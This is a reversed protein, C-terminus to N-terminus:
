KHVTGHQTLWLPDLDGAKYTSSYSLFDDHWKQISCHGDAFSFASANGHNIAPRDNIGGGSIGNYAIFLFFGDNISRPNEDLYVFQDSTSLGGAGFDTTKSYGKYSLNLFQEGYKLETQSLGVYCNASCSRIRIQKTAADKSQDAPCHYIGSSKAYSGISGTLLGGNNPLTDGFVGLLYANTEVGGPSDGANSNLTTGFSGAVWNPDGPAVGIFAAGGSVTGGNGPLRENSDGSYLISALQMQKMNSLCSIGQARVKAKALAPLLMAALIAIIAIVVLLEILTFGRAERSSKLRSNNLYANM